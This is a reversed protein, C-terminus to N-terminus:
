SFSPNKQRIRKKIEEIEDETYLLQKMNEKYSKEREELQSVQKPKVHFMICISSYDESIEIEDALTMVMVGEDSHFLARELSKLNTDTKIQFSVEESEIISSIFYEVEKRDDLWIMLSLLEQLTLSITAFHNELSFEDCLNEAMIFAEDLVSQKNLASSEFNYLM